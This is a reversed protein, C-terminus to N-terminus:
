LAYAEKGIARGLYDGGEAECPEIGRLYCTHGHFVPTQLRLSPFAAFHQTSSFLVIILSSRSFCLPFASRSM